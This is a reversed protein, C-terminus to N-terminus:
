ARLQTSSLSVTTAACPPWRKLMLHHLCGVCPLMLMFTACAFLITRALRHVINSSTMKALMAVAVQVFVAIVCESWACANRCVPVPQLWGTKKHLENTCSLHKQQHVHSYLMCLNSLSHCGHLQRARCRHADKLHWLSLAPAGKWGRPPKDLNYHVHFNGHKKALEDFRERLLIDEEETNAFVLSVQTKDEPNNLIEEIVQQM